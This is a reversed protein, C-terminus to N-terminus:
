FHYNVGLTVGVIPYDISGAWEANLGVSITNVLRYAAGASLFFGLGVGYDNQRNSYNFIYQQIGLGIGTPFFIKDNRSKWHYYFVPTYSFIDKYNSSGPTTNSRFAFGIGKYRDFFYAANLGLIIGSWGDIKGCGIVFGGFYKTYDDSFQATERNQETVNPSTL